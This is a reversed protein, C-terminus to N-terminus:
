GLVVTKGQVIAEIALGWGCLLLAASGIVVIWYFVKSKTIRGRHHVSKIPPVETLLAPVANDHHIGM